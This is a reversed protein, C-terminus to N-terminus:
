RGRAQEASAGVLGFAEPRAGALRPIVEGLSYSTITDTAIGRARGPSVLVRALVYGAAIVSPPDARLPTLGEVSGAFDERRALIGATAALVGRRGSGDVAAGLISHILGHSRASLTGDPVSPLHEGLTLRVQLDALNVGNVLSNMPETLRPNCDIYDPRGSTGDWFYDASFGGHWALRRGLLRFHESVLPRDVGVKLAPGGNTGEALRRDTRVAVLRGHDFVAHAQEFSGTAQAQVVLGDASALGRTVAAVTWLRGTEADDRVCWTGISATGEPTKIWCPHGFEAVTRRLEAWDHVVRSPPHPLGVEDLLELFATKTQVRTFADFGAVAFHTWPELAEHAWAFLYAQENVSMLVDYHHEKLLRIVTRLYGIPDAGSAPCHHVRRVFRSFRCLCAPNPDCVDVRYGALGLATVTERANTSSGESLLITPRTV